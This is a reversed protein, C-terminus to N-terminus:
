TAATRAKNADIVDAFKSKWGYSDGVTALGAWAYVPIEERDVAWKWITIGFLTWEKWLIQWRYPPKDSSWGIVKYRTKIM